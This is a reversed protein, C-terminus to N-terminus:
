LAMEKDILPFTVTITTGQGPEGSIVLRGKLALVRERMGILGFAVASRAEEETIGRGNDKVELIVQNEKAQLRVSVRSARAHRIVNTLAEQYIRFVATARDPILQTEGLDLVAECAIGTRKQFEEAQWEVAAALGVDDLLGPRLESSLRQVTRLTEDILTEMAHTKQHLAERQPDLRRNLWSLDMKLATMTQGLEDHIERALRTREEERVSQLHASLNRLEAQSRRLTEEGQRRQAERMELSAAMVDFSEALENLEGAKIPIGTRASLDGEALRRAAKLMARVQRLILLDGGYWVALLIIFSVCGLLVLNHILVRNAERHLSTESIGLLLYIKQNRLSSFLPFVVYLRKLGDLGQTTLFGSTEFKLAEFLPTAAMSHGIWKDPEPYRSLIVGQDNIQTISSGEPLDKELVSQFRYLWEKDLQGFVVGLTRGEASIVPFAFVMEPPLITTGASCEGVAFGRKILANQFWEQSRVDHADFDPGASIVIKGEVTALGLNKFRHFHKLLESLYGSCAAPDEWQGKVHLALGILVQRISDFLLEEERAVSQVLTLLRQQTDAVAQSREDSATHIMLGALPIVAFLVLIILRTRLHGLLRMM